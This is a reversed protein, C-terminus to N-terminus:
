AASVSLPFSIESGPPFWVTKQETAIGLLNRARRAVLPLFLLFSCSKVSPVGLYRLVSKEGRFVRFARFRLTLSRITPAAKRRSETDSHQGRFVRFVRFTPHSFRSEIYGPTASGPTRVPPIMCSKASPIDLYRRASKEGGVRFVRFRFLSPDFQLLPKVGRNQTPSNGASYVSYM